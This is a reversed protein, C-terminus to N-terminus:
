ADPAPISASSEWDEARSENEIWSDSPDQEPEREDDDAIFVEWRSDDDDGVGNDACPFDKYDLDSADETEIPETELDSPEDSMLDANM